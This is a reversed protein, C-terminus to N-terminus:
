GTSVIRLHAGGQPKRKEYRALSGAALVLAVAIDDRALQNKDKKVMRCNGSDDNNVISVALSHTLLNRSDKDVSLPGDLAMKRLETIDFTSDSWRAIRSELPVGPIACDELSSIKFRDCIVAMPRGWREIIAEILTKPLPVRLGKCVKLTGQDVLKQYTGNPVKDRKEQASIDPIGPCLALAEVRGGEWIAVAASWSRNQGLDIGVIPRRGERRSVDRALVGKWDDVTLLCSSEDATPANLRYSLFRAKLRSDMRAEDREELLKKRFKGSIAVLPNCRRIEPWYDWKEPDGKLAQVYTSKRSGDAVLDHWWGSKAPALTGIYIVRMPSGPKGLATQIADHMLTGGATIWSGPEDCCIIRTNVIGMATKANSSLIRLRTHDNKNTIGIRTASDLFRYRGTPELEDRIFRYCLRAQEISAACLLYETGPYNLAHGPTLALRLIHAALFSKGNGRPISLCATDIGPALAKKIFKKQFPRLQFDMKKVYVSPNPPRNKARAALKPPAM